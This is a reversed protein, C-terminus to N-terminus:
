STSDDNSSDAKALTAKLQLSIPVRHDRWGSHTGAPIWSRLTFAQSAGSDFVLVRRTWARLGGLSGNYLVADGANVEVQLLDDLDDTSPLARLAVAEPVPAQNTVVVAGFAGGERSSPILAPAHVFADHQSVALEGSPVATFSVDAGGGAPLTRVHWGFVAFAAVLLGAALGSLRAAPVAHLTIRVPM